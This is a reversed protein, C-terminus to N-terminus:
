ILSMISRMIDSRSDLYQDLIDFHNFGPTVIVGPDAGHRHLHLAYRYSQDIFQWPERGGAIIWTPCLVKPAHREYNHRDILEQTLRIDANVSTLLAPAPDYIGSIMVAGKILSPSLGRATWDTALAAACLHAGASHGSVTIREPDGGLQDIHQATWALAGLASDVVGDLTVEPCLAYNVIVTCVGAAVLPAAMFAFNQKDQARWYGGHFFVHVPAHAQEVPYVDVTNLRHPGYAQDAVRRLQNLADSNPQERRARYKAFDPVACQPNYQYEHEQSTLGEWVPRPISHM